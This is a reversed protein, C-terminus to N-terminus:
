MSQTLQVLIGGGVVFCIGALRMKSFREKLFIMTLFYMFVPYCGTIAIVYSASSQDLCSLFTLRGIALTVASLGAFMWMMKSTLDIKYKRAWAIVLAIVVIACEWICEALWTQYPGGVMVAKKDLIGWVGWGVTALVVCVFLEIKRKRSAIQNVKDHEPNVGIDAPPLGVGSSSGIAAVGLAIAGAGFLRNMILPEGLFAISLFQTLVPYAATVALVISAEAISMAMLYAILAVFQIVSAVGTWFWVEPSITFNAQSNFLYAAGIPAEWLSMAYLAVIVAQHTGYQLAKKDFIGWISWCALTIVILFNLTSIHM